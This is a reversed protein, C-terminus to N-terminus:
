TSRASQIVSQNKWRKEPHNLFHQLRLFMALATLTLGILLGMWVGLGGWGSYFALFYGLPLAIVWYATFIFVSPIKVDQMGRLAAVCVVQIGDSLQFLGAIVLLSAAIPIVGPDDVYWHPLWHRAAIFFV